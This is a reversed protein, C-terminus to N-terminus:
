VAKVSPFLGKLEDTEPREANWGPTLTLKEAPPRDLILKWM